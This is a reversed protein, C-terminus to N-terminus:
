RSVLAFKATGSVPQSVACTYTTSGAAFSGPDSCM